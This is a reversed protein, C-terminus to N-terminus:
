PTRREGRRDDLEGAVLWARDLDGHLGGLPPPPPEDPDDRSVGSRARRVRHTRRTRTSGRGRILRPCSARAKVPRRGFTREIQRVADGVLRELREERSPPVKVTGDLIDGLLATASRM